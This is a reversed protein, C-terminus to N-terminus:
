VFGFFVFDLRVFEAIETIMLAHENMAFPAKPM